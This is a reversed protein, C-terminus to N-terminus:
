PMGKLLQSVRTKEKNKEEEEGEEEGGMKRRGKERMGSMRWEEGRRGERGGM